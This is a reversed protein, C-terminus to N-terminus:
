LSSVFEHKFNELGNQNTDGIMIIVFLGIPKCDM